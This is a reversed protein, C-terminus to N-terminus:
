YRPRLGPRHPPQDSEIWHYDRRCIIVTTAASAVEVGLCGSRNAAIKAMANRNAGSILERSQRVGEIRHGGREFLQDLLVLVLLRDIRMLPRQEGVDELQVLEVGGVDHHLADVDDRQFDVRGEGFRHLLRHLVAM